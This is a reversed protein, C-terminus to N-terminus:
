IQSDAVALSVDLERFAETKIKHSRSGRICLLASRILSFSLKTRILNITSSIPEDRKEAVQRGLRNYFRLSEIGMGGSCSSYNLQHTKETNISIINQLDDSTLLTMSRVDIIFYFFGDYDM